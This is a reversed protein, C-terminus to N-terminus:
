VRKVEIGLQALLRLAEKTTFDRVSLGTLQSVLWKPAVRNTGVDVYWSQFRTFEQDDTQLAQYAVDLM